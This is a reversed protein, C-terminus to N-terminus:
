RVAMTYARDVYPQVAALGKKDLNDLRQEPNPHTSFLNSTRGPDAAAEIKQLVAYMALPNYGARATYIMSAVDSRYEVDKDFTTLIAAAGEKAFYGALRQAFPNAGAKGLAGVFKDTGVNLAISAMAQKRIVNYHDRSVVHSIEHGLVAAVEDDSALVEYLGRTVMIYGGPAAFANITPSDVVVFTWPLDDRPTQLAVWHGITNVRRQAEPNNWVPMVSLVRGAVQPGMAIEEDYKEQESKPMADAANDTVSSGLGFHGGVMGFLGKKAASSEAQQAQVEESSGSAQRHGQGIGPEKKYAVQSKQLHMRAAYAEASADDVRFTEMQAVAAPNYGAGRLDEVNIGRVGATEGAKPRGGFMSYGDNGGGSARALRVENIKVFGVADPQAKVNFWLGDQRQVEVTAGKKLTAVTASSASAAQHVAVGDKYVSAGTSGTPQPAAAPAPAPTPAPHAPKRAAVAPGAVLAALITITLVRVPYRM